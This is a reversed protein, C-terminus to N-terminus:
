LQLGQYILEHARVVTMHEGHKSHAHLLWLYFLMHQM